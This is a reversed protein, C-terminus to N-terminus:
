LCGALPHRLASGYDGGAGAAVARDWSSELADWERCVAGAVGHVADPMRRQHTQFYGAERRLDAAVKRKRKAKEIVEQAMAYAHGEYLPEERAQYGTRAAPTGEGELLGATEALHEAAHHWDVVQVGDYVHHEVLKWAWVSGEGLVHTERAQGFVEHTKPDFTPRVEMDFVSGVKPEEWGEGRIHVMAGEMAVGM